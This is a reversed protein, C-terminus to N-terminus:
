TEQKRRIAGAPLFVCRLVSHLGTNSASATLNQAVLRACAVGDTLIFPQFAPGYPACCLIHWCGGAAGEGRQVGGMRPMGGPLYSGVPPLVSKPPTTAEPRGEMPEDRKPLLLQGGQYFRNRDTVLVSERM